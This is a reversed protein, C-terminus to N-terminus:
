FEFRKTTVVIESPRFRSYQAQIASKRKELEGEFKAWYSFSTHNDLSKRLKEIGAPVVEQTKQPIRKRWIEKAQTSWTSIDVGDIVEPKITM